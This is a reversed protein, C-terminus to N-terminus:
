KKELLKKVKELAEKFEKLQDEYMARIELMRMKEELIKV